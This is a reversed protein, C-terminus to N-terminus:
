PRSFVSAKHSFVSAKHSFVSAVPRANCHTLRRRLHSLRTADEGPRVVLVAGGALAAFIELDPGCEASPTDILVIDFPRGAAKMFNTLRPRGLLELPDRRVAGAVLVAVNPGCAVFQVPRDELLDALGCQNKLGFARHVSPARLDADILLTRAGMEGFLRALEVAARSRGDGKGTSVIPLLKREASFWHERLQRALARLAEPQLPRAALLPNRLLPLLEREVRVPRRRRAQWLAIAAGLTLGLGGGLLLGLALSRRSPLVTPADVLSADSYRVLLSSLEAKVGAPDEGATELKVVRSEAGAKPLLVRARAVYTVPALAHWACAAALALALACLGPRVDLFRIM